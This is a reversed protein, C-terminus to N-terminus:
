IFSQPDSVGTIFRVETQARLDMDSIGELYKEDHFDELFCDMLYMVSRVLNSDPM